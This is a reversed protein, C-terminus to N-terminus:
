IHKEKKKLSLLIINKINKSTSSESLSEHGFHALMAWISWTRFIQWCKVWLHALKTPLYVICPADPHYQTSEDILLPDHMMDTTKKKADSPRWQELHFPFDFLFHRLHLLLLRYCDPM